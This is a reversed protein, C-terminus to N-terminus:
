NLSDYFKSIDKKLQKFDLKYKVKNIKSLFEKAPISGYKQTQNKKHGLIFSIDEEAVKGGRLATTFTHRFSHLDLLIKREIIKRITEEELWTKKFDNFIKGFHQGYGKSKTLYLESFLREKKNKKQFELYNLFGLDILIKHIPILRNSSKNKTRQEVEENKVKFFYVGEKEKIQNIYLQSIENTRAGTFM